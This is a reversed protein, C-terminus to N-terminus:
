SRRMRMRESRLTEFASFSVKTMMTVMAQTSSTGAAEASMAMSINPLKKRSHPTVSRSLLAACFSIMLTTVMKRPEETPMVMVPSRNRCAPVSLIRAKPTTAKATEVAPPTRIALNIFRTERLFGILGSIPEAPTDATGIAARTEWTSPCFASGSLKRRMCAMPGLTAPTM